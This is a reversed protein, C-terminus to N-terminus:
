EDSSRAKIHRHSHAWPMGKRSGQDPTACTRPPILGAFRLRKRPRAGLGPKGNRKPLSPTGAYARPQDIRDARQAYDDHDLVRGVGSGARDSVWRGNRSWLPRSAQLLNPQEDGVLPRAPLRWHQRQDSPASKRKQSRATTHSETVIPSLGIKETSTAKMMASSNGVSPAVLYWAPRKM